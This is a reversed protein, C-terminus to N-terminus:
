QLSMNHPLHSKIKLKYNKLIPIMKGTHPHKFSTGHCTYCCQNCTGRRYNGEPILTLTTQTTVGTGVCVRWTKGM